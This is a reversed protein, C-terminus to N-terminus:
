LSVVKLLRTMQSTGLAEEAGVSFGVALKLCELKAVFQWEDKSRVLLTCTEENYSWVRANVIWSSLGGGKPRTVRQGALWRVSDAM